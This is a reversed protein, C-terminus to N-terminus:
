MINRVEKELFGVKIAQPTNASVSTSEFKDQLEKEKEKEKASNNNNNNDSSDKVLAKVNKESHHRDRMFEVLKVEEEELVLIEKNGEGDEEDEDDSTVGIDDVRMKKRLTKRMETKSMETEKEVEMELEKYRKETFKGENKVAKQIKQLLLEQKKSNFELLKLQESTKKTAGREVRLSARCVTLEDALDKKEATLQQVLEKHRFNEVKLCELEREMMVLGSDKLNEDKVPQIVDVIGSGAGRSAAAARELEKKLIDSFIDSAVLLDKRLKDLDTKAAAGGKLENVFVVLAKAVRQSSVTVESDEKQNPNTDKIRKVAEVIKKLLPLLTALKIEADQQLLSRLENIVGTADKM